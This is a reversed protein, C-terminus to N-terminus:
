IEDKWLDPRRAKWVYSIFLEITEITRDIEKDPVNKRMLTAVYGTLFASLRRNSLVLPKSM